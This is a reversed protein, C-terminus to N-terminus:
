SKDGGVRRITVPAGGAVDEREVEGSTQPAPRERVKDAMRQMVPHEEIAYWLEKRMAELDDPPLFSRFPALAEEVASAIPDPDTTKM